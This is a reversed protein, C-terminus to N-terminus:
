HDGCALRALVTDRDPISPIAGIGTVSIAAAACAYRISAELSAGSIYEAAFAGCFCDGAGSADVLRSPFAPFHEIEGAHALLAGKDGMKLIITKVGLDLYFAIIDEPQERGTLLAVDDYSPLLIDCLTAAHHIAERARELPWLNTRLNTDYSILTESERAVTMAAFVTECASESIAQSIGSAHLLRAGAVYERPIFDPAMRSAASDARYYTFSHDGDKRAIFYIGTRGGVERDVHSHDIGERQWLDMLADGFPDAGVRSLYGVSGGSRAAAVAFNSTDGGYGVQFSRVTRLDGEEASSLEYLPEGLAIIEPQM